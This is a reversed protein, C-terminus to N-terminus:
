KTKLTSRSFPPSPVSYLCYEYTQGECGDTLSWTSVYQLNSSGLSSLELLRCPKASHNHASHTVNATVM